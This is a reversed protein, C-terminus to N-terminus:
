DQSRFELRYYGKPNQQHPTSLITAKMTQTGNQVPGLEINTPQGVWRTLDTSYAIVPQIGATNIFQKWTFESLPSQDRDNSFRATPFDQNSISHPTEGLAFAMFNTYGEPNLTASPSREEASYIEAPLFHDLWVQFSVPSAQLALTGTRVEGFQTLTVIRGDRGLHSSVYSSSQLGEPNLEIEHPNAPDAVDLIAIKPSGSVVLLSSFSTRLSDGARISFTEANYVETLSQLQINKLLTPAVRSDRIATQSMDYIQITGDSLFAYLTNRSPAELKVLPAPLTDSRLLNGRAIFPRPDIDISWFDLREYSGAVLVNSGRPHFIDGGDRELDLSRNGSRSITGANYGRYNPGGDYFDEFSNRPDRWVVITGSENVWAISPWLTDDIKVGRYGGASNTDNRPGLDTISPSSSQGITLERMKGGDVLAFAQQEGLYVGNLIVDRLGSQPYANTLWGNQRSEGAFIWGVSPVVFTVAGWYESTKIYKGAGAGINDYFAFSPVDSIALKEGLNLQASIHPATILLSLASLLSTKTM